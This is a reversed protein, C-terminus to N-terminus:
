PGKDSSDGAGSEGGKRKKIVAVSLFIACLSFNIAAQAMYSKGHEHQRKADIGAMLALVGALGFLASAFHLLRVKARPSLPM